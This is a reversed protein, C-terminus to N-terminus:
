ATSVRYQRRKMLRHLLKANRSRVKVVQHRTSFHIQCYLAIGREGHGLAVTIADGARHAQTANMNKAKLIRLRQLQSRFEADCELECVNKTINGFVIRHATDIKRLFIQDSETACLGIKGAICCARRKDLQHPELGIAGPLVVFFTRRKEIEDAAVALRREPSQHPYVTADELLDLRDPVIHERLPM